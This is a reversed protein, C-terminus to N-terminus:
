IRSMAVTRFALLLEQLHCLYMRCPNVSVPCWMKGDVRSSYFILYDEKSSKVSEPLAPDETYALPMIVTHSRKREVRLRTFAFLIRAPLTFDPIIGAVTIGCKRPDARM